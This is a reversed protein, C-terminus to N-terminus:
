LLFPQLHSQLRLEFGLIVFVLSFTFFVYKLCLQKWLIWLSFTYLIYKFCDWFSKIFRLIFFVPCPLPVHTTGDVQPASGPLDHTWSWGPYYLSVGM